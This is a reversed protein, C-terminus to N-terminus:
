DAEADLGYAVAAELGMERGEAVAAEAPGPGLSRRADALWDAQLSTWWPSVMGLGVEERRAAAAGALRAARLPRALAAAAMAQGELEYTMWSVDGFERARGLGRVYGDFAAAYDGEFLALDSLSHNAYMLSRPDGIRTALEDLQRYWREGDQYDGRMCAAQGLMMLAYCARRDDGLDTWSPLIEGFRRTVADANGQTWELLGLRELTLLVELSDGIQRWTSVSEELWRRAASFDGQTMALEGAGRLGRARAPTAESSGRLAEELHERGERFPGRVGWFWAMYGALELDRGGGATVSWDLASRLNEREPELRGLWAIPDVSRHGYAEKALGLFYEFQRQHLAGAETSEALRDRGYQRLTELLRYRTAGEIEDASVLSKDVLRILLELVDAEVLPDGACM